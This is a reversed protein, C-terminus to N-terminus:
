NKTSVLTRICQLAAATALNHASEVDPDLKGDDDRPAQLPTQLFNLLIALRTTQAQYLSVQAVAVDTFSPEASPTPEPEPELATM